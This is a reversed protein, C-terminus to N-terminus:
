KDLLSPLVATQSQPACVCKLGFTAKSGSEDGCRRTQGELETVDMHQIFLGSSLTNIKKNSYIPASHQSATTMENSLCM